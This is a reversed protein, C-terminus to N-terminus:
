FSPHADIRYATFTAFWRKAGNCHPCHTIEPDEFFHPRVTSAGTFDTEEPIHKRLEVYATRPALKLQKTFLDFACKLCINLRTESVASAPIVAFSTASNKM